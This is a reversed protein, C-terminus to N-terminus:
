GSSTVWCREPVFNAERCWICHSPLQICPQLQWGGPMRSFRCLWVVVTINHYLSIEEGQARWYSISGFGSHDLYFLLNILVVTHVGKQEGVSEAKETQVKDGRGGVPWTCKVHVKLRVPFGDREGFNTPFFLLETCLADWTLLPVPFPRVGLPTIFLFGVALCAHTAAEVAWIRSGIPWM